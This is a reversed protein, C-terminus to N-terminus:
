FMCQNSVWVAITGEASCDNKRICEPTECQHLTCTWNIWKNEDIHNEPSIELMCTDRGKSYTLIKNGNTNCTVVKEENSFTLNKSNEISCERGISQGIREDWRCSYWDGSRQPIISNTVCKLRM